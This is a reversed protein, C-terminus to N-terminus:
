LGTRQDLGEALHGIKKMLAAIAACKKGAILRARPLAKITDSPHDNLPCRLCILAPHAVAGVRTQKM